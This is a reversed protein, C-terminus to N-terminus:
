EHSPRYALSRDHQMVTGDPLTVSVISGAHSDTHMPHFTITVKDGPKVISKNWGMRKLDGPSTLEIAWLLDPDGAKVGPMEPNKYIWIYSHPNTWQLEKVTGSFAITKTSDFMSGSHHAVAPVVTAGLSLAVIAVSTVVTKKM